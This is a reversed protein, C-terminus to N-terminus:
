GAEDELKQLMDDMASLIDECSMYDLQEEYEQKCRECLENPDRVDCGCKCNKM